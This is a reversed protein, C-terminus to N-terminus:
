AARRRNRLIVVALALTLGIAVGPLPVEPVAPPTTDDQPGSEVRLHYTPLPREPLADLHLVDRGYRLTWYPLLVDAGHNQVLPSSAPYRGNADPTSLNYPSRQWIFDEGRNRQSVPLPHLSRKSTATGPQVVEQETGNPLTEFYHVEDSAVCTYDVGCRDIRNEAPDTEHSRADVWQRLHTIALDRRWAEHTMTWTLSEFLANVDDRTSTDIVGFAEFLADNQDPDVVRNITAQNTLHNLNFNYYSNHPSQVALVFEVELQPSQSAFEELWTAEYRTKELPTGAVRSGVLAAHALDIRPEPNYAFLPFVFNEIADGTRDPPRTHPYVISYAHRQFYDEMTMLDRGARIVVPDTAPFIDIVGLLGYIAGAYMDRSVGDECWWLGDDTGDDDEDFPFPGYFRDGRSAPDKLYAFKAPLVDPVCNRMLIGAEGNIASCSGTSQGPLHNADCAPAKWSKAINIRRHFGTAIEDIPARIAALEAASAGESQRVKWRMAQAYLYDGTWLSSDGLGELRAIHDRTHLAPDASDYTVDLLHGWWVNDSANDADIQAVAAVLDPADLDASSAAADARGTCVAIVLAAVIAPLAKRRTM